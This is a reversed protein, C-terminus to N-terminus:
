DEDVIRLYCHYTRSGFIYIGGETFARKAAGFFSALKQVAGCLLARPLSEPKAFCGTACQQGEIWFMCVIRQQAAGILRSDREGNMQGDATVNGSTNKFATVRTRLRPWPSVFMVVALKSKM